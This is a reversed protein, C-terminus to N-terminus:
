GPQLVARSRRGERGSRQAKLGCSFVFIEGNVVSGRDRRYACV